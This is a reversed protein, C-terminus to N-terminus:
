VGKRGEEQRKLDNGSIDSKLFPLFPGSKFYHHIHRGCASGPNCAAFLHAPSWPRDVELPYKKGLKAPKASFLTFKKVM